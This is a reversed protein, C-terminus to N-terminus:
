PGNQCRRMFAEYLATVYRFGWQIGDGISVTETMISGNESRKRGSYMGNGISYRVEANKTKTKKRPLFAVSVHFLRKKMSEIYFKIRHTRDSRRNRRIFGHHHRGLYELDSFYFNLFIFLLLFFHKSTSHNIIGSRRELDYFFFNFFM